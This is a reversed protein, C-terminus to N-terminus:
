GWVNASNADYFVVNLLRNNRRGAGLARARAMINQNGDTNPDGYISVYLNTIKGKAISNLIHEDSVALSHGYIFLTGAISSFSRLSRSLYDSHRIKAYKKESEGEAVFLPYLNNSLAESIQEILTTGTRSWTYKKLETESDFLHLAGHLYFLRQSNTNGITWTVYDTDNDGDVARFGDDTQPNPPNEDFPNDDHMLAWYLLLDYNLTYIRDFPALFHRCAYYQEDDIDYPVAPHSDAIASVLVEKLGESDNVLTEPLNSEDNSYLRVISASKQLTDMVVEFDTTNLADFAARANDSLETFDARDFLASYAFIDPKCAQSFGNGLLLKPRQNNRECEALAEQFSIVPM